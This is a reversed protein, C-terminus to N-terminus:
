REKRVNRGSVLVEMTKRGKETKTKDGSKREMEKRSPKLAAMGAETIVVRQIISTKDM